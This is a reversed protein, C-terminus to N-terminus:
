RSSVQEPRRAQQRRAPQHRRPRRERDVRRVAKRVVAVLVVGAVAGLLAGTANLLVDDIDAARGIQYQCCEITTSLLAGGLVARAIGDGVATVLLFGIPVFMAVNGFINILGVRPNLNHLELWIDHGPRLNVSRMGSSMGPSLTLGLVVVVSALLLFWGTLRALHM